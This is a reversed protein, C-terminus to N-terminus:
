VSWVSLAGRALAAVPCWGPAHRGGVGWVGAGGGARARAEASIQSLSKTDAGAVIPTILGKDTAVAVSVDVGAAPVAAGAAADWRANAAPVDALALAVARIVFDNVSVQARPAPGRRVGWSARAAPSCPAANSLLCRVDGTRAKERVM